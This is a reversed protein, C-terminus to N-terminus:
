PLHLLKPKSDASLAPSCKTLVHFETILRDKGQFFDLNHLLLQPMVKLNMSKAQVLINFNM